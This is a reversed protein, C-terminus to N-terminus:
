VRERCSARGIQIASRRPKLTSPKEMPNPGFIMLQIRSPTSHDQRQIGAPPKTLSGWIAVDSARSPFAASPAECNGGTEGQDFIRTAREPGLIFMKKPTAMAQRSHPTPIGTCILGGM